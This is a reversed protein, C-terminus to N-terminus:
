FKLVAFIMKQIAATYDAYHWLIATYFQMRDLKYYLSSIRFTNKTM